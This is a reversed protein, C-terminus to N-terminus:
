PAIARAMDDLLGRAGVRTTLETHEHAEILGAASDGIVLDAEGSEWVTAEAARTPTEVSVRVTRPAGAPRAFEEFKSVASKPLTKRWIEFEDHLTDIIM